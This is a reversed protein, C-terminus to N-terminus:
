CMLLSLKFYFMNLCWVVLVVCLDSIFSKQLFWDSLIIRKLFSTHNLYNGFYTHVPMFINVYHEKTMGRNNSLPLFPNQGDYNFCLACSKQLLGHKIWAENMLYLITRSLQWSSEIDRTMTIIEKQREFKQFRDNWNSISIYSRSVESKYVAKWFLAANFPTETECLWSTFNPKSAENMSYLMTHQLPSTHDQAETLKIKKVSKCQVECQDAGWQESFRKNEEVSFHQM